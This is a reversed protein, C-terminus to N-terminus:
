SHRTQPIGNIHVGLPGSSTATYITNLLTDTNNFCILAVTTCMPVFVRTPSLQQPMCILHPEVSARRWEVFYMLKNCEQRFNKKNRQARAETM